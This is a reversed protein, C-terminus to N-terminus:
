NLVLHWKVKPSICQELRFSSTGRHAAIFHSFFWLQCYEWLGAHLLGSFRVAIDHWCSIV